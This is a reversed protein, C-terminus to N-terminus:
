IRRVAVSQNWWHRLKLDMSFDVVFNGSVPILERQHKKTINVQKIAGAPCDFEVAVATEQIRARRRTEERKERELGVHVETTLKEELSAGRTNSGSVTTESSTTVDFTFPM